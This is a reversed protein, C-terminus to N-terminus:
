IYLAASFCLILDCCYLALLFRGEPLLLEWHWSNTSLVGLAATLGQLGGVCSSLCLANLGLTTPSLSFGVLLLAIFFMLIGSADGYYLHLFGLVFAVFSLAVAWIGGSFSIRRSFTLGTSFPLLAANEQDMAEATATFLANTNTSGDKKTYCYDKYWVTFLLVKIRNKELIFFM